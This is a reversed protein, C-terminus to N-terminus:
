LSRKMRLKAEEICDNILKKAIEKQNMAVEAV